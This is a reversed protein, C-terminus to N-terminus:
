ATEPQDAHPEPWTPEASEPEPPAETEGLATPRDVLKVALGVLVAGLLVFLRRRGRVGVLVLVFGPVALPGVVLARDRGGTGNAASV